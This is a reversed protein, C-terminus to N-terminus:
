IGIARCTIEICDQELPIDGSSMTPDRTPVRVEVHMTTPSLRCSLLEVTKSALLGTGVLRRTLPFRIGGEVQQMIAPVEAKGQEIFLVSCPDKEHPYTKVVIGKRSFVADQWSGLFKHKKANSLVLDLFATPFYIKTNRFPLNGKTIISEVDHLMVFSLMTSTDRSQPAIVM